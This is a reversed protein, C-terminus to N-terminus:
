KKKHLEDWRKAAQERQEPTMKSPDLKNLDDVSAKTLDLKMEPPVSFKPPIISGEQAPSYDSSKLYNQTAKRISEKVDSETGENRMKKAEAAITYAAAYLSTSGKFEPLDKIISYVGTVESDIPSNSKSGKSSGTGEKVRLGAAVERLRNAYAMGEQYGQQDGAALRGQANREAASALAEQEDPKMRALERRLTNNDINNQRYTEARISWTDYTNKQQLTAQAGQVSKLIDFYNEKIGNPHQQDKVFISGDWNGQKDKSDIKQFDIIKQGDPLFQNAMPIGAEKNGSVALGLGNSLHEMMQAHQANQLQIQATQTAIDQHMIRDAADSYGMARLKQAQLVAPNQGQQLKEAPMSADPVRDIDDSNTEPYKSQEVETSAEKGTSILAQKEATEMKAQKLAELGQAARIGTLYSGLFDPPQYQVLDLAM